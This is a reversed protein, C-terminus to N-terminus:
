EAVGAVLALILTAIQTWPVANNRWEIVKIALHLQPNHRVLGIVRHAAALEAARLDMAQQQM